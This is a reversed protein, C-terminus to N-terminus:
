LNEQFIPIIKIKEFDSRKIKPKLVKGTDKVQQDFLVFLYRKAEKEKLLKKATKILKNKQDGYDFNDNSLIEAYYIEGTKKDELHIDWGKGAGPHFAKLETTKEKLGNIRMIRDLAMETALSHIRININRIRRISLLYKLFEKRLEDKTKDKYHM